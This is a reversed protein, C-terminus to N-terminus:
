LLTGPYPIPRRHFGKTLPHNLNEVDKEWINDIYKTAITDSDIWVVKEYGEKLPQLTKEM